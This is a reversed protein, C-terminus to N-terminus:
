AFCCDMRHGNSYGCEPCRGGSNREPLRAALPTRELDLMSATEAQDLVQQLEPSLQRAEPEPVPAPWSFSELYDWLITRDSDSLPIEHRGEAILKIRGDRERWRCIGARDRGSGDKRRWLDASREADAESKLCCSLGVWGLPTSFGAGWNGEVAGGVKPGSVYRDPAVEIPYSDLSELYVEREGRSDIGCKLQYKGNAVIPGDIISDM